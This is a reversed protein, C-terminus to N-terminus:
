STNLMQIYKKEDVIPTPIVWKDQKCIGKHATQNRKEHKQWLDKNLNEKGLQNYRNEVDSIFKILMLPAQSKYMKVYMRYVNFSNKLIDDEYDYLDDGIEIILEHFRLFSLHNYNIKTKSLKYCILNLIRYDFSKLSICYDIMEKFEDKIECSNVNNININCNDDDNDNDNYNDNKCNSCLIRELKWYMLGDKLESEIEVSYLKKFYLFSVLINLAKNNAVQEIFENQTIALNKLWCKSDLQNLDHDNNNIDHDSRMSQKTNSTYTNAQKENWEDISYIISEVFVLIDMFKYFHDSTLNHYILYTKAFDELTSRAKKLSRFSIINTNEIENLNTTLKTLFLNNTTIDTSNNENYQSKMEHFKLFPLSDISNNNSGHMCTDIDVSIKCENTTHIKDATKDQKHLEDWKQMCDASSFGLCTSIENWNCHQVSKLELLKLEDEVSWCQRNTTDETM